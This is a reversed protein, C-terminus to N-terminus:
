QFIVENTVLDWSWNDSEIKIIREKHKMIKEWDHDNNIDVLLGNINDIFIIKLFKENNM